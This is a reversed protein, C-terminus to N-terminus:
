LDEVDYDDGNGANDDNKKDDYTYPKVIWICSETIAISVNKNVAGTKLFSCTNKGILFLLFNIFLYWCFDYHSISEPETGM